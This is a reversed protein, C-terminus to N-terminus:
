CPARVIWQSEDEQVPTDNQTWYQLVLISEVRPTLPKALCLPSKSDYSTRVGIRATTMQNIIMRTARNRDTVEDIMISPLFARREAANAKWSQLQPWAGALVSLTTIPRSDANMAWADSM